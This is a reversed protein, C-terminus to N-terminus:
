EGLQSGLEEIEQNVRDLLERNERRAREYIEYKGYNEVPLELEGRITERQRKLGELREQPSEQPPQETKKSFM